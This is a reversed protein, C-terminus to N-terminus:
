AGALLGLLEHLALRVQVYGSAGPLWDLLELPGPAPLGMPAPTLTVTTGAAAAAREFNRLARPMHYAHTVLVIHDIGQPQLLALTRQANERTDRSAGEAWRLPQGYEQAAMRAAIEAEGPGPPAGPVRGGSFAVPLATARALWLGYRLREAGAPKLAPGHYEPAEDRRGGGLVVIATRPADKLATIQAPSLAPPPTLLQQTLAGAVAGTGSLWTGAVGLLLLTWGFARRRPLTWGGALVLALFPLPPFILATLVPKWAEVGLHVFLENM